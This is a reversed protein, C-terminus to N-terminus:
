NNTDAVYLDFNLDVFIGWPYNLQHMALGTSGNGARTTVTSGNRNLSVSRILHQTHASCYLTNNVDIFLGRCQDSFQAVFVNSSGNASRKEIRGAQSAVEFYMEKALSVFLTGFELLQGSMIHDPSSSTSGQMWRLIDGQQYRAFYVTDDTDIFMGRAQM